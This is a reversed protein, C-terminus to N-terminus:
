APLSGARQGSSGLLREVAALQAHALSAMEAPALAGGHAVGWEDFTRLVAFLLRGQLEVPLDSRVAGSGRGAAMVGDLWQRIGEMAHSVASDAPAGSLYFMRGLTLLAPDGSAVADLLSGFLRRCKEWFDTGAFERPPPINVAALVTGSLERVVLDFLEAKSAIVHYFSSKSLGCEHIIRNLSAGAYGEAAFEAGAVRVLLERRAAPM